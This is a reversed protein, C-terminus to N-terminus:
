TYIPTFGSAKEDFHQSPKNPGIKVGGWVENIWIWEIHEGFVLNKKSKGRMVSTDYVPKDTIKYNEDVIM